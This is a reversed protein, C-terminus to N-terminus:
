LDFLQAIRAAIKGAFPQHLLDKHSGSIPIIECEGRVIRPWGNGPLRQGTRREASVFIAVDGDYPQPVYRKFLPNAIVPYRRDESHPLANLLKVELQRLASFAYRPIRLMREALYSFGNTRGLAQILEGPVPAYDILHKSVMGPGLSDMMVLPAVPLGEARLAQAIEYAITGGFSWGVLRYPGAPCLAKIAPIYQRAFAPMDKYAFRRSFYRWSQLGYMPAGEPLARILKQYSFVDGGFPSVFFIPPVDPDGARLQYIPQNEIDPDSVLRKALQAITASEYLVVPPISRGLLAEVEVLMRAATLSDGGLAIFPDDIGVPARELVDEWIAILQAELPAQASRYPLDLGARPDADPQPLAARDVKGAHNVPLQPLITFTTPLMYDPLQRRLNARIASRSLEYDSRPALYADLQHTVRPHPRAVVVAQVVGPQARLAAEVEGLEVRYGRVKVMFDLRGRHFLLDGARIFGADGTRYYTWAPRDPHPVFRHADLDPERWYGSVTSPNCSVIEGREGEPLPKGADDWILVEGPKLTYGWPIPDDPALDAQHSIFTEAIWLSESTGGGIGFYAEPAFHQKFLGFDQHVIQEGGIRVSRMSELIRDEPLSLMFNRYATAAVHFNTIHHRDIFDPLPGLGRTKMDYLYITNGLSLAAFLPRYAGGFSLSLLLAINEDPLMTHGTNWTHAAISFAQHAHAVAKPRGTSGSTFLALCLQHLGPQAVPSTSASTARLEELTIIPFGDPNFDDAHRRNAQDTIILAPQSHAVIQTARESLLATDQPVAIHGARMIALVAVVAHLNMPLLSVIPQQDAVGLRRAIAAALAEVQQHLQAYTLADSHDVIALKDPFRLASHTFHALITHSTFDAPLPQYGPPAPVQRLFPHTPLSM